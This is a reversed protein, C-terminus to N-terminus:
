GYCIKREGMYIFMINSQSESKAYETTVLSFEKHHSSNLGAGVNLLFLTISLISVMRGGRYDSVNKSTSTM